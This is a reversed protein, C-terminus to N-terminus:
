TALMDDYGSAREFFSMDEACSSLSEALAEVVNGDLHRGSLRGDRDTHERSMLRCLALADSPSRGPKYPRAQTLAHFVDAVALIRGELPIEEERLGFPYGTGDLKEHHMAAIAPVRLLDRRFSIRSLIMGTKLVHSQMLRREPETLGGAKLLVDDPIGIKGYDHLIAAIRVLEVREPSLGMQRAIAVALGTVMMTHKSTTPDKADVSSALTIIFSNFQRKQEEYLLANEVAVAAIRSLATLMEVDDKSFTAVGDPQSPDLRNVAQFVGMLRGEHSEMPVALLSRTHYGSRKDVEPNFLPSQYADDIVIIRRKLAAAGAVGQGLPMRFERLLGEGIYTYIQERDADYLWLTSRDASV